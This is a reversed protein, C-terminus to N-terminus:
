NVEPFRSRLADLAAQEAREVLVKESKPVDVRHYWSGFHSDIIGAATEIEDPTAASRARRFKTWVASVRAHVFDQVVALRGPANIDDAPFLHAYELPRRHHVPYRDPYTDMSRELDPRLKKYADRAARRLNQKEGDDLPSRALQEIRGMLARLEQREGASLAKEGELQVKAWLREFARKEGSSLRTLMTRLWGAAAEKGRRLAKLVVGGGRVAWFGASRALVGGVYWLALEEVGRQALWTFGERVGERWRRLIDEHLARYEAVADAELGAPSSARVVRASEVWGGAQAEDKRQVLVLEVRVVRAGVGEVFPRLVKAVEGRVTGSVERAGGGAGPRTVQFRRLEWGEVRGDELGADVEVRAAGGAPVEVARLLRGLAEMSSEILPAPPGEWRVPLSRAEPPRQGQAGSEYDVAWGAEQRRLVLRVEGTRRRAYAEFVPRLADRTAQGEVPRGTPGGRGSAEYGVWTLAGREAWFTFALRAGVEQVGGAVAWVQVVARCAEASAARELSDENVGAPLGDGVWVTGGSGEHTTACGAGMLGLAVFVLAALMRTM